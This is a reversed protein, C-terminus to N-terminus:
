DPKEIKGFIVMYNHGSMKACAPCYAYHVYYKSAKLAKKALAVDMAKMFKPVAHYPGDFVKTEFDGSLTTNYAGKVPKMVNMFLESRFASPDHFLVIWDDKPPSAKSQKALECMKMIKKGIMPPFPIHFFTPITEQIFLKEEWSFSQGDWKQPNFKPCCEASPSM